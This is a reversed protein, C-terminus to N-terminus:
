WLRTLGAYADLKTDASLIPVGEVLSQAILLRDFPDRHDALPFPLTELAALHRFEIPLPTVVLTQMQALTFAVPAQEPRLKGISYKICMEWVSIVSLLRQNIPERIIASAVPSLKTTDSAAWLFTHTDLIVRM